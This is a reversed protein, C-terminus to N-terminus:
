IAEETQCFNTPTKILNTWVSTENGVEDSYDWFSLLLLHNLTVLLGTAVVLGRSIGVQMM